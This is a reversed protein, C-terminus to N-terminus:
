SDVINKVSSYFSVPFQLTELLNSIPLQSSIPKTKFISELVSTLGGLHYFSWRMAFGVRNRLANDAASFVANKM